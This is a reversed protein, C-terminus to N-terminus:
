ITIEILTDTGPITTWRRSCIASTVLTMLLRPSDAVAKAYCFSLM